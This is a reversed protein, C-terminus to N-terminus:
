PFIEDLWTYCLLRQKDELFYFVGEDSIKSAITYFTPTKKEDVIIGTNIDIKVIHFHSTTIIKLAYLYGGYYTMSYIEDAQVSKTDLLELSSNLIFLTDPTTLVYVITDNVAIGKIEDSLNANDILIREIDVSKTTLNYRWVANHGHDIFLYKSNGDMYDGGTYDVLEKTNYNELNLEFLGEAGFPHFYFMPYKYVFDQIPTHPTVLPNYYFVIKTTSYPYSFLFIDKKIIFPEFNKLIYKLGVTVESLSDSIELTDSFSLLTYNKNSTTHTIALSDVGILIDDKYYGFIIREIESKDVLLSDTNEFLITYYDIQEINVRHLREQFDSSVQAPKVATPNECGTFFLLILLGSFILQKM